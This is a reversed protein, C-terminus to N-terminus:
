GQKLRLITLSHARCSSSRKRPRTGPPPRQRGYEVIPCYIPQLFLGTDNTMLPAIVNFFMGMAPADEYYIEELTERNGTRYWVERNRGPFTFAIM